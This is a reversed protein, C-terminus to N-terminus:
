FFVVIGETRSEWLTFKLMKHMRSMVFNTQVLFSELKLCFKPAQWMKRQHVFDHRKTMNTLRYYRKTNYM